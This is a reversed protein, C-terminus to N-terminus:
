FPSEETALNGGAKDSPFVPDPTTQSEEGYSDSAPRQDDSARRSLLQVTQAQVKLKQRNAGSQKDQWQDLDLEGAVLCAAGKRGNEGMFEATRSWCTCDIFVPKDKWEDGSKIRRNVAIGFECVATGGATFRTECDRTLHGCLTVQNM